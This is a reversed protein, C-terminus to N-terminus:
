QLKDNLIQESLHWLREGIEDDQAQSSPATLKGPPVIQTAVNSNQRGQM